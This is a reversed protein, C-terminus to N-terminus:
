STAAETGSGGLPVGGLRNGMTEQGDVIDM